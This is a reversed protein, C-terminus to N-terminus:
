ACKEEMRVLPVKQGLMIDFAFDSFPMFAAWTFFTMESFYWWDRAAYFDVRAHPFGRALIGALRALEDFYPPKFIPKEFNPYHWKLPLRMGNMAYLNAHVNKTKDNLIIWYILPAGNFCYFELKYDFAIVPECLLAPPIDKYCYELNKYYHNTSPKLWQAMLQQLASIDASDRDVFKQRGSGFNSKIIFKEPMMRLVDKNLEDSSKFIALSKVFHDGYGSLRSRIYSHFRTKDAIVHMLPNRYYVKLWNLKENYTRPHDFDINFGQRQYFIYSLYDKIEQESLEREYKIRDIEDFQRASVWCQEFSGSM